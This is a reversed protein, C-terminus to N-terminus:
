YGQVETAAGLQELVFRAIAWASLIIALGIIGSFIWKRAEGVKEDNGGATMWRFGGILIIVVAVIGLLSLSVNIIRTATVRLDQNGLKIADAADADGTIFETGFVDGAKGIEAAAMNPVLLLGMVFIAVIMLVAKYQTLKYLLTM